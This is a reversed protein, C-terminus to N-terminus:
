RNKGVRKWPTLILVKICNMIVRSSLLRSLITPVGILLRTSLMEDGFYCVDGALVLIDGIPKLPNDRLWRSNEQFELHLDSAYQLKM